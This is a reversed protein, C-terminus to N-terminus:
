RASPSPTSMPKKARSPRQSTSYRLQGTSHISRSFCISPSRYRKVTWLSVLHTARQTTVTRCHSQQIVLARSPAIQIDISHWNRLLFRRMQCQILQMSPCPLILQSTTPVRTSSSCRCLTATHRPEAVTGPKLQPIIVETATSRRSDREVCLFM